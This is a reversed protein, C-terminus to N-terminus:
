SSTVEDPATWRVSITTGDDGSSTIDLTAGVAEAREKMIELGMGGEQPSMDFGSGDDSIRMEAGDPTSNLWLHAQRARAHKVVNNLAEQAIRYFSIKVAPPLPFSEAVELSISIRKRGHIAQILHDLQEPLNMKLMQEPRLELLLSRMEALAGRNLRHLESLYEATRKPNREILKPLTEAIISSTFLSQSVSDHLDRALRQREEFAALAQSQEFIQANHIAIAAQTAFAELRNIHKPTFFGPVKSTLNLFGITRDKLRIPVGAYSRAWSQDPLNLWDAYSHIDSILLPKGTRIMQRLPPIDAIPLRTELLSADFAQQGYGRGRAVRATENEIFMINAANHPVVYIVNELIRDLVESLNRTTILANGINRLAEALIRQEREAAEIRKHETINVAAGIIGNVDGQPSYQPELRLDYVQNTKNVHLRIEQRESRGSELIRRKLTELQAADSAPFLENDTRGIVEEPTPRSVPNYVWTYRLEKDQNFVSVSSDRLATRFRAESLRLAEATQKQATIDEIVSIFYEPEGTVPARQLSVTLNIWVPSGDPYLYRKEITYSEIEGDLLRRLHNLDNELDDPHTLEQFTLQRLEEPPRKVITCLRQNFRLFRGEIGVHALGVAAQEFTARFRRESARLEEEMLRRETIDREITTAGIIHGLANKIPSASLAIAMNSGDKRRRVTEFNKVREGRGIRELFNDHREVSHESFLMSFHRGIVEDKQYGYIAEAGHNWSIIIGDLDKSVIADESTETLTSLHQRTEEAKKRETIDALFISLGNNAPYVRVEYWAALADHYYEFQERQRHQHAQQLHEHFLHAPNDPMDSLVRWISIGLLDEKPRQLIEAAHDNVYVFRWAWDVALFGDRMVDMVDHLMQESAQKEALLVAERSPSAPQRDLQHQVRAVIEDPRLPQTVFDNAGATLARSIPQKQDPQTIYLVPIQRTEATSRLAHLWHSGDDGSPRTGILILAPPTDQKTELATVLNPASQVAWHESLMDTLAQRTAPDDHIVLLYSRTM